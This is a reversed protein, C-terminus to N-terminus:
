SVACSVIFFISVLVFVIMAYTSVSKDQENMKSVGKPLALIFFLLFYFPLLLFNPIPKVKQM